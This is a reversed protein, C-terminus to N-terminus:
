PLDSTIVPVRAQIYDFLKNPLAYEYNKCTNEELSLGLDATQTINFLDDPSLLGVFTVKETLELDNVMQKLANELYGTGAITLTVNELFLMAGIMQELGRGMNLSGQYLLMKTSSQVTKPTLSIASKFLPVNRIVVSKKNYRDVFEKAISDCVTSCAAVKRICHKEFFNWVNRTKERGTLEPLETYLEHSDYVLPKRKLIAALTCGPLTDLDNATIIDVKAFLLDFFLAINFTAYFAFGKKAWMMKRKVTFAPEILQPRQPLYRCIVTVSYGEQSLTNAIKLVRQDTAIDNTVALIISRKQTM